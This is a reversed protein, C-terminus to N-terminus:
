HLDTNGDTFPKNVGTLIHLEITSIFDAIYLAVPLHEGSEIDNENPRRQQCNDEVDYINLSAFLSHYRFIRM